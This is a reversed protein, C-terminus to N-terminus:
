HSKSGDPGFGRQGGHGFRMDGFGRGNGSGMDALNFTETQPSTTVSVYSASAAETAVQEAFAAESDEGYVFELSSLESGGAEPDGDYFTVTLTSGMDLPHHLLMGAFMEARQTNTASTATNDTSTQGAPSSSTTSGGSQQAGVLGAGLLAGSLGLAMLRKKM